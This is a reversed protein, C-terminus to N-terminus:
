QLRGSCSAWGLAVARCWGGALDLETVNPRVALKEGTRGFNETLGQDPEVKGVMEAVM